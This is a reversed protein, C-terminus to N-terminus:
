TGIYRHDQLYVIRNAKYFSEIRSESMDHKDLDVLLVPKDQATLTEKIVEAIIRTSGAPSSFAIIYNM